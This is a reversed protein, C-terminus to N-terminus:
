RWGQVWPRWTVYYHYEVQSFILGTRNPVNQQFGFAMACILLLPLVIAILPAAKLYPDIRGRAARADIWAAAILVVFAALTLWDDDHPAAWRSRPLNVALAYASPILVAALAILTARARTVQGGQVRQNVLHLGCQGSVVSGGPGLGVVPKMGQQHRQGAVTPQFLHDGGKGVLDAARAQQCQEDAGAGVLRVSVVAGQDLGDRCALGLAGAGNVAIVPHADFVQHQPQELPVAKVGNSGV